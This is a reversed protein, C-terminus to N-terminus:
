EVRFEAFRLSCHYGLLPNNDLGMVWIMALGVLVLRGVVGGARRWHRGFVGFSDLLAYQLIGFGPSTRGDVMPGKMGDDMASLSRIQDSFGTGAARVAVRMVAWCIRGM